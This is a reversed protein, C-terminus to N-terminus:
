LDSKKNFIAKMRKEIALTVLFEKNILFEDIYNHLSSLAFTSILVVPFNIMSAFALGLTGANFYGIWRQLTIIPNKEFVIKGEEVLQKYLVTIFIPNITIYNNTMASLIEMQNYYNDSIEDEGCGSKWVIQKEINEKRIIQTLRDLRKKNPRPNKNLIVVMITSIDEGFLAKLKKISKQLQNADNTLSEFVYLAKLISNTKEMENKLQKLINSLIIPDGLGSEDTDDLGMTDILKYYNNSPFGDIKSIFIKSEKTTSDGSDDGVTTLEKKTIMNIFCSKGARTPGALVIMPINNQNHSSSQRDKNLVYELDSFQCNANIFLLMLLLSFIEYQKM